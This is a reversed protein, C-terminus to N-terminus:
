HMTSFAQIAKSKASREKKYPALPSTQDLLAALGPTPTKDADQPRIFTPHPQTSDEVTPDVASSFQLPSPSPSSTHHIDPHDFTTARAAVDCSSARDAEFKITDSFTVRKKPRPNQFSDCRPQHGPRVWKTIHKTIQKTIQKTIWKFPHAMM